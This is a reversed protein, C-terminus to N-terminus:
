RRWSPKGAIQFRIPLTYWTKVPKGSQKGPIFRPLSKVVRVAEKDCAPYIGRMVLVDGVSGNEMVVFRLLVDGEIREKLAEKPYVINKAVFGLLAAAGGPFTPPNEVVAYIKDSDVISMSNPEGKISSQKDLEDYLALRAEQIKLNRPMEEELETLKMYASHSKEKMCSDVVVNVTQELAANVLKNKPCEQKLKNLGTCAKFPDEDKLYVKAVSDVLSKQAAQIYADEPYYKKLKGLTAIARLPENRLCLYVLKSLGLMEKTYSITGDPNEKFMPRDAPGQKRYSNLMSLLEKQAGSINGAAELMKTWLIHVNAYDDILAVSDATEIFNSTRAMKRISAIFVKAGLTEGQMYLYCAVKAKDHFDTVDEAMYEYVKTANSAKKRVKAIKEDALAKVEARPEVKALVQTLLSDIQAESFLEVTLRADCWEAFRSHVSLGLDMLNQTMEKTMELLRAEQPAQSNKLLLDLDKESFTKTYEQLTENISFNTLATVLKDREAKTTLMKNLPLGGSNQTFLAAFTERLVPKMDAALTNFKQKYSATCAVKPLAPLARKQQISQISKLMYVQIYETDEQLMIRKNLDNQKKLVAKYEEDQRLQIFYDLDELSLHKKYYPLVIEVFDEAMYDAVYEDVLAQEDDPHVEERQQVEQLYINRLSKMDLQDSFGGVMFLQVLKARYVKDDTQAAATQSFVVAAVLLWWKLNGLIKM